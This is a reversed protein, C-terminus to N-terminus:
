RKTAEYHGPEQPSGAGAATRTHTLKNGTVCYSYQDGDSTTLTDGNTTFTTGSKDAGIGFAIRCDCGGGAATCSVNSVMGGSGQRIALAVLNCNGNAQAVCEAPLLVPATLTAEATRTVKNGAFTIRGAMNGTVTGTTATPCQRRIESTFRDLDASPICGATYDWTGELTGGCPPTETCAGTVVSFPTPAPLTPAADPAGTGTSTGTATSTGTTTATATPADATGADTPVEDTKGSCAAFGLTVAPIALLFWRKM